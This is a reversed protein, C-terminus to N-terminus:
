AHTPTPPGRGRWAHSRAQGTLDSLIVFLRWYIAAIPLPVRIDASSVYAGAQRADFCIACDTPQGSFRGAASVVTPAAAQTAVPRSRVARDVHTEIVFSQWLLAALLAITLVLRHGPRLRLGPRGVADDGASAARPRM